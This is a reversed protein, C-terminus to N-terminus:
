PKDQKQDLKHEIRELMSRFLELTKNLGDIAQTLEPTSVYNKAVELKFEALERATREARHKMEKFNFWLLTVLGAAVAQLVIMLVKELTMDM